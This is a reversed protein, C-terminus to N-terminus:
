GPDSFKSTMALILSIHVSITGDRILKLATTLFDSSNNYLTEVMFTTDGSLCIFPNGPGTNCFIRGVRQVGWFVEEAQPQHTHQQVGAALVKVLAGALLLQVTEEDEELYRPWERLPLFSRRNTSKLCAPNLCNLKREYWKQWHKDTM